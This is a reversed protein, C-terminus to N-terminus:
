SEIESALENEIQARYEDTANDICGLANVVEGESDRVICMECTDPEGENYAEGYEEFHNGVGWDDSWDFTYGQDRAEQANMVVLVGM